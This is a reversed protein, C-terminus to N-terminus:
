IVDLKYPPFYIEDANRSVITLKALRKNLLNTKTTRYFLIGRPANKFHEATEKTVEALIRLLGKRFPRVIYYTKGRKVSFIGERPVVWWSAYAEDLGIPHEKKYAKNSIFPTLAYVASTRWGMKIYGPLSNKNPFNYIIDDPAIMQLSRKTMETFIGGGRAKKLVCTDGPQYARKSHIDNRWLARAAVPEDDMYVVELVSPGYINQLFKRNFNERTYEGFVEREVFLFDEIFKEDLNDSFRCDYVINM